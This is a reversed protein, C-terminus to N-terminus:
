LFEENPPSFHESTTMQNHFGLNFSSQGSSVIQRAFQRVHPTASIRLYRIMADSKWRGLLQISHPDVNVCLLATAGGARLSRADIQAPKIGLNAPGIAILSKRLANRIDTSSVHNTVSNQLFRCVPAEQPQKHKLLYRVRRIIAMCPCVMKDGSRSHSITEDKVGNKQTTFCLSIASVAELDTPSAEQPRLQGQGQARFPNNNTTYTREGPRLFFLLSYM